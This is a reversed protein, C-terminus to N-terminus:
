QKENHNFEGTILTKLETIYPSVTNANVPQDWLISVMVWENHRNFLGDMVRSSYDATSKHASQFWYTGTYTNLSAHTTTKNARNLSLFRVASQEGMMWVGKNTISFGQGLYCNEPVHQTKWYHSWVLIMSGSLPKAAQNDTQLSFRLKQVQGHNSVFFEHEQQSLAVSKAQYHPALQINHRIETPLQKQMPQYLLIFVIILGLTGSLSLPLFSRNNHAQVSQHKKITSEENVSRRAFYHLLGWAIGCAMMFGLIGLFQHLMSALQPTKLVLELLVLIVIRFINASMLLGLFLVGLLFWLPTIRYREIWTLLLYFIAGIWLSNIGSCDLDVIAARNDIMLISETTLTPLHMLVLLSGAGEASLLRLPFGLYVDLYHEFPLVLITLLIPLLLSRWVSTKIVHGLLGYVYLIGLVASLTRMGVAAENLLYLVSVLLWILLSPYYLKPMHFPNNKIARLRYLGLSLLAFLAILHLYGYDLSIKHLLWQFVPLYLVISAIIIAIVLGKNLQLLLISSLRKM